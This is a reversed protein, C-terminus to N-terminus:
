VALHRLASAVQAVVARAADFREVDVFGHIMGLYRTAIVPVGADALRSAYDEGQDRLPDYEATIILAPPLGALAAARLPSVHPLERDSVAPTYREVHWRITERDLGFGEALESRVAGEDLLDLAPCLLVQLAFGPAGRDRARMAVAAALNAGASDGALALRSVDLELAGGHRKVWAVAREVDEVAAPYPHEPALRYEVALVAWGSDNAIARCLPEAEEVSGLAWGGGHLYLAVPALPLPRFLRCRVGGADVEAVYGVSEGRAASARARARTAALDFAGRGPIFRDPLAAAEALAARAQPHLSIRVPRSM